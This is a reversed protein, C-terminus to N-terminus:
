IKTYFNIEKLFQFVKSIMEENDGLIVELATETAFYKRRITSHETCHLIIHEVTLTTGCPTCHPLRKETFLPAHSFNTHGIRLRTLIVEEKRNARFSSSWIEIRPKIKQLQSTRTSWLEQAEQFLSTLISKRIRELKKDLDTKRYRSTNSWPPEPVEPPPLPPLLLNLQSAYERARTGLPKYTSYKTEIPSHYVRYYNINSRQTALKTYYLLTLYIRRQDLSLTNSETQLSLIPSTRFAGTSLRLATNQICNLKRLTATSASTYIISGYDLLSRVMTNYIKLMTLRDSGWSTSYLKKLINLAKSCRAKLHHIHTRWTLKQDFILGLFRVETTTPLKTGALHLIVPRMDRKKKTFNIVNTKTSSFKLKKAQSWNTLSHLTAQIKEELTTMTPGRIYIVLDDAFLSYQVPKKIVEQIDTLAIIFLLPSLVSGQPTGTEQLRVTSLQDAIRVRFTRNSLFSQIFRPLNGRFKWKQLTDLIAARSIRDFAKELDFFVCLTSQNLTFGDQIEQQLRVLNDITCRKQRFGNQQPDLCENKELYWNLRKTLIKELIKCLVSTLSIPRYSSPETIDKNTKLIPIIHAELWLAPIVHTSWITNYLTLLYKLQNDTLNKIMDIHIQDPGASSSRMSMISTRLEHMQIPQNYIEENDEPFSSCSALTVDEKTVTYFYDAMTEAINGIETELNGEVNTLATIPTFSNKNSIKRIQNWITTSCIRTNISSVFTRWSSRKSFIITRRAVARAIKFLKGNEFTPHKKFNNLAINKNKIAVECNQNWWPVPNRTVERRTKPISSNAAHIITNTFNKNMEEVQDTPNFVNQFSLSSRFKQWDAKKINWNPYRPGRLKRNNRIYILQPHHDSNFLQDSIKWSMDEQISTSCLTLDIATSTGSYVDFRTSTGDNLLAIHPASLFKEIERGRADIKRSGWLPNHSNFDGTLIFPSHLQQLLNNLELNNIVDDHHLYISCVTIIRTHDLYIKAAVAQYPTQIQVLESKITNHIAILVGGKANGDTGLDQRFIKYNKLTITDNKSLKTEQLCIVLPTFINLLIQLYPLKRKFSNLNWSIICNEM